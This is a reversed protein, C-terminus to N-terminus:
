RDAFRSAKANAVFRRVSEPDKIGASSEVGTSTDVGYPRLSTIAQAVNDPTLGGALILRPHGGWATIQQWDYAAGSGPESGDVLFGAAPYGALAEPTPARSYSVARVVRAHRGVAAAYEANEDGHLQAVAIDLGTLTDIVQALPANRFVGVVTIFPGVAAIIEAAAVSDVRRKSAAFILGIADAGASEVLLADEPRTIGCIKVRVM